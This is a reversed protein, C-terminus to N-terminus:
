DKKIGKRYYYNLLVGLIGGFFAYGFKEVSIYGATDLYIMGGAFAFFAVGFLTQVILKVKEKDTM